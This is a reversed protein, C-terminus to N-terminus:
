LNNFEGIIYKRPHNLSQKQEEYFILMKDKILAVIAEEVETMEGKGGETSVDLTINAKM